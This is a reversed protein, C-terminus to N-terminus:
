KGNAASVVGKSIGQRAFCRGRLDEAMSLRQWISGKGHKCGAVSVWQRSGGRGHKGGAM